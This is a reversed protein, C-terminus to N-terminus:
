AGAMDAALKTAQALAKADTAPMQQFRGDPWRFIAFDNRGIDVTAVVKGKSKFILRQM